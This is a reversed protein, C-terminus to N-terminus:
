ETRLVEATRLRGVLRGPGYAIVQAVMLVSPLLLALAVAAM